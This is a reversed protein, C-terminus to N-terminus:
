APTLKLRVQVGGSSTSDATPVELHVGPHSAFWGRMKELVQLDSGTLDLFLSGDHFQMAKVNLGPAAAQAQAFTQLMSFLTDGGEGRARRVLSEIQASLYSAPRESPFIQAFRDRNADEQVIAAHRLKFAEVANLVVGGVLCAAALGAAMQWPLWYRRWSERRALSGQLLNITQDSRYHRVLAEIPHSHGPRLEVSRQLKTFDRVDDKMVFLQLPHAEAGADAIQLMLEIEDAPSVFGSYEGNRILIDAGDAMAPWAGAAPLPLALLDPVLAHAEIEADKLQQLWRDLQTRAVVAVPFSGDAQRTGLAFHLEEVDEALQEELLYPTALLAKSAQRVPPSVKCLRIDSLPAFVVIRRGNALAGLQELPARHVIVGAASEAVTVVHAIEGTASL